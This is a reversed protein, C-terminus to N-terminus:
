EGVHADSARGDNGAKGKKGQKKAPLSYDSPGVPVTPNDIEGIREILRQWQDPKLLQVFQQDLEGPGYLPRYGVHVHDYHDALAFSPGGLDQLSILEDPRMTGQLALVTKLLAETLTGPGQNGTVPIGNITPIDVANGSSHNSVNGSATLYSHGCRLSTVTLRFGKEVLYELMALVRRDVQGTRIDTRGCSYIELRPDSLVRRILAQKSLLLVQGVGLNVAFPNKGAARYIATAELLKWGDLIPKPDIRPAGRGAPRISFNVHPAVGDVPGSVRGLVTGAVVKSGERLPRLESDKRGCGSSTTSTTRSPRMARCAAVPSITSSVASAPATASKPRDPLAYLRPRLDETNVPQSAGDGSTRVRDGDSGSGEGPREEAEDTVPQASGSQSAPTAPESDDPPSVLKFDSATLREPKPVPHVDSISGLKAYTFRNGYADQLVIYRGLKKNRGIKRIVGDNVAVVPAGRRTFINIGRRTPSSTVVEAANGYSERASPTARALAERTSIDDAYRADAAVPFHAGETLGTLSSVLDDPLKGYARAISCCRRSTGTPTTTPSSRTTSTRRPAPLGCTARPPASRTSRTTPTRAGTPTPTSETPRGPPPSSSCGASSRRRLLRQPQHRLRDRDQQDLGAGALPVGYQTGCAQYIPLLFPPIEFSDIVFNPVGIPAPGFPAITTTPNTITPGDPTYAPPPKLPKQKGDGDKGGPVAVGGTGAGGGGGISQNQSVGDGSGGGGGAGGGGAGGGSGGGGSGGGGGDPDGGGPAPPLEPVPVIGSGESTGASSVCDPDALDVAGDGDDDAGNACAPLPVPSPVSPVNVSPGGGPVQIQQAGALGVGLLVATAFSGLAITLALKHRM